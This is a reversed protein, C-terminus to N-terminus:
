IKDGGPFLDALSLEPRRKKEDRLKQVWADETLAPIRTHHDLLEPPTPLDLRDLVNRLQCEECCGVILNGLTVLGSAAILSQGCRECNM